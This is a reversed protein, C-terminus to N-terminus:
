FLDIDDMDFYDEITIQDINDMVETMSDTSSFKQLLEIGLDPNNVGILIGERLSEEYIIHAVMLLREAEEKNNTVLLEEQNFTIEWCDDSESYSLKFADYNFDFNEYNTRMIDRIRELDQMKKENSEQEEHKYKNLVQQAEEKNPFPGHIKKEMTQMDYADIYFLNKETRLVYENNM